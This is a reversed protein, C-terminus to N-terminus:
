FALILQCKRYVDNKKEYFSQRKKRKSSNRLELFRKIKMYENEQPKDFKGLLSDCQTGPKVLM